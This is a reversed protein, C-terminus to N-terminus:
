INIEEKVQFPFAYKTQYYIRVLLEALVGLMVFLIGITLFTVSIFFLPSLWSGQLFIKRYVVFLSIFFSFCVSFIGIGGFVYIPRSVFSTLFKYLVLDLLLKIIRNFGYKSKGKLRKKHNVKLESFRAGQEVLYVPLIRHMEGLLKLDKVYERKYAKLSCGIDHLKIGSIKAVIYNGVRSLLRRLFFDNRKYRWGSVVDYGEKIKALFAPIDCPDNQGDADLIIVVDGSVKQFGVQIAATQGYNKVLRVGKINNSTNKALGRIIDWTSDTSGDDIILVEYTYELNKVISLLEKALQGLSEEENFAPIIISIKDRNM